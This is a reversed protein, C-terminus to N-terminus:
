YTSAYESPSTIHMVLTTSAQYRNAPRHDSEIMVPQPPNIISTFILRTMSPDDQCARLAENLLTLSTTKDAHRPSVYSRHQRQQQPQQQPQQKRANANAQFDHIHHTWHLLLFHYATTADRHDRCSRLAYLFLSQNRPMIRGNTHNNLFSSTLAIVQKHYKKAEVLTKITMTYMSPPCQRKAVHLRALTDVMIAITTTDVTSAYSSSSLSSSSSLDKEEMKSLTIADEAKQDTSTSASIDHIAMQGGHRSSNMSRRRCRHLFRLIEDMTLRHLLHRSGHVAFNQFQKQTDLKARIVWHPNMRRYWDTLDRQHRQLLVVHTRRGGQRQCQEIAHDIVTEDKAAAHGGQRLFTLWAVIRHPPLTDLVNQVMCPTPEIHFKNRAAIVFAEIPSWRGTPLAVHKQTSPNHKISTKRGSTSSSNNNSSSVIAHINQEFSSVLAAQADAYDVKASSSHQQQQQASLIQMQMHMQKLHANRFVEVVAAVVTPTPWIKELLMDNWFEMAAHIDDHCAHILSRYLKASRPINETRMSEFLRTAATKDRHWDCSQMAIYYSKIDPQQINQYLYMLAEQHKKENVLARLVGNHSATSPGFTRGDDSRPVNSMVTRNYYMLELTEVAADSSIYLGATEILRNYEHRTLKVQNHRVRDLLARVAPALLNAPTSM